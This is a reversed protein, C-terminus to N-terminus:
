YALDTDRMAACCGVATAEQGIALHIPTKMQDQHYRREIEEEILRIRLMRRLLDVCWVRDYSDIRERWAAFGAGIYPYRIVDYNEGAHQGSVLCINSRNRERSGRSAAM